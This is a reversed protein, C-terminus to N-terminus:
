RTEQTQLHKLTSPAVGFEFPLRIGLQACLPKLLAYHHTAHGVCFMIERALTSTAEEPQDADSGVSYRVVLDRQMGEGPLTRFQEILYHTALNAAELSGELESNRPRHDYDVRGTEMGELLCQFHELVHRYHM